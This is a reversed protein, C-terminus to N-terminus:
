NENLLSMIQLVYEVTPILYQNFEVWGDLYLFKDSCLKQKRNYILLNTYFAGFNWNEIGYLCKKWIKREIWLM